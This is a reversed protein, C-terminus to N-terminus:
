ESGGWGLRKGGGRTWVVVVQAVVDVDAPVPTGLARRLVHGAEGFPNHCLYTHMAPPPYPLASHLTPHLCVRPAPVPARKKISFGEGGEGSRGQPTAPAM